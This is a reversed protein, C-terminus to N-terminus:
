FFRQWGRGTFGQGQHPTFGRYARVLVAGTFQDQHGGDPRRRKADRGNQRAGLNTHPCVCACGLVNLNLVLDKLHSSLPCYYLTFLIPVSGFDLTIVFPNANM